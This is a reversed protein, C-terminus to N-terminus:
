GYSAVSAVSTAVRTRLRRMFQLNFIRNGALLGRVNEM